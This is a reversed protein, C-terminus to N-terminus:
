SKHVRNVLLNSSYKKQIVSNKALNGRSFKRISISASASSTHNPFACHYTNCHYFVVDGPNTTPYIFDGKALEIQKNFPSFGTTLSSLHDNTFDSFVSPLFGLGGSNIDQSTSYVYCTLAISNALAFYFNDQHAPIMHSSVTQRVHIEDDAFFIDDVGLLHSSVQM